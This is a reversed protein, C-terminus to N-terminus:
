SLYGYKALVMGQTFSTPLHVEVEKWGPVMTTSGSSELYDLEKTNGGGLLWALEYLPCLIQWVEKSALYDRIAHLSSENGEGCRDCGLSDSIQREWILGKMKLRDHALMWM